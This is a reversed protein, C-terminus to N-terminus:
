KDLEQFESVVFQGRQLPLAYGIQSEQKQIKNSEDIFIFSKEECIPEKPVLMEVSGESDKVVEAAADAKKDEEQWNGKVRIIRGVHDSLLKNVNDDVVGLILSEVDPGECTKEEGSKIKEIQEKSTCLKYYSGGAVDFTERASGWEKLVLLGEHVEQAYVPLAFILLLLTIALIVKVKM